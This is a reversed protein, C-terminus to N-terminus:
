PLTLLLTGQLLIEVGLFFLAALVLPPYLEEFRIQRPPKVETKELRNIEDFIGKLESLETARFYKGGTNEAIKTLTDEDIEEEPRRIYRTGFIPDTMAYIGGGRKGAGITYVKVGMSQATKAAALPDVSGTNNRGDTLLIVTKSLSPVKKLHVLSTMLGSGIATGETQTMAIEVHELFSKVAERDLTPPCALVAAGGFVVLGIRDSTRKDIFDAAIKKAAQLRNFPQFDLAQMSTSTDLALIIDVGLMPELEEITVKQPRMLAAALLLLAIIRLIALADGTTAYKGMGTKEMLFSRDADAKSYRLTADCALRKRKLIKITLLATLIAVIAAIGLWPAALAISSGPMKLKQIGPRRRNRGLAAPTQKYNSLLPAAVAETESRVQVPGGATLCTSVTDGDESSTADGQSELRGLGGSHPQPAPRGRGSATDGDGFSQPAPRHTEVFEKLIAVAENNEQTAPAYKAFKALDTIELSEKLKILGPLNINLDQRASHLRRLLESTTLSATDLEFRRDLYRRFIESLAFHFERCRMAKLLDAEQLKDLERYFAEEAPLNRLAQQFAEAAQRKKSKLWSWLALLATVIILSLPIMMWPKEWFYLPRKPKKIDRIDSPDKSRATPDIIKLPIPPTKVITPSSAPNLAPIEISPVEVEGLKFPMLNATLETIALGEKNQLKVRFDWLVFDGWQTKGAKWSSLDLKLNAPLRITYQIEVPSALLAETQKPKAEVGIAGQASLLNPFLPIFCYLFLFFVFNKLKGM